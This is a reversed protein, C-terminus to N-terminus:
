PEFGPALKYDAPVVKYYRTSHPGTWSNFILAVTEADEKLMPPGVFSENPYDGGFNCTNVIRYRM